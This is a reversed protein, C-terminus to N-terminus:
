APAARVMLFEYGHPAQGLLARLAEAAAVTEIVPTPWAEGPVARLAPGTALEFAAGDGFDIVVSADDGPQARALTFQPDTAALDPPDGTVKM